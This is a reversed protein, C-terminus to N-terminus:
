IVTGLAVSKVTPYSSNAGDAYFVLANTGLVAVDFATASAAIHACTDLAKAVRGDVNIADLSLATGGTGYARVYNAASVAAVRVGGSNLSVESPAILRSPNGNCTSGTGTGSSEVTLARAVPGGVGAVLLARNATGTAVMAPQAQGGDNSLNALIVDASPLTLTTGAKTVLKGRVQATANSPFWATQAQTATVRAATVQGSYSTNSDVTVPSGNSAVNGTLDIACGRISSNPSSGWIAIAETTSLVAGGVANAGYSPDLDVTGGGAPTSGSYNIGCAVPHGSVSRVWIALATTADVKLIVPPGSATNTGDISASTGLVAGSGDVLDVIPYGSANKRLVFGRTSSLGCAAIFSSTNVNALVSASGVAGLTPSGGAIATGDARFYGTVRTVGSGEGRFVAVDGARVTIDAAGLCILNAGNTLTPTSDFVVVREAGQALSTATVPGTAGTVHVFNGDTNNLALTASCAIAAGEAQEQSGTFVNRDLGALTLNRDPVTIVRTQGTTLGDVEFRMQKTADASGKVVPNTDVFAAASAAVAASAAANAESAAAAQSYGYANAAASAANGNSVGANTESIAAAAAAAVAADAQANLQTSLANLQPTLDTELWDFFADGNADFEEQTQSRNPATPAADIQLAVTM